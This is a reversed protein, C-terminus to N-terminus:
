ADDKRLEIFMTQPKAVNGTNPEQPVGSVCIIRATLKQYLFKWKEIEEPASTPPPNKIVHAVFDTARDRLPRLIDDVPWPKTAATHRLRFYTLHAIDRDLREEADLSLQVLTSPFHFDDCLVDHKKRGRKPNRHTYEFFDLLLRSHMLMALYLSERIHWDNPVDKPAFFAHEIEYRVHPLIDAIEQQSPAWPNHNTSVM